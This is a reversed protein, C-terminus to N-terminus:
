AVSSLPYPPPPSQLLKKAGELLLILRRQECCLLVNVGLLNSDGAHEPLSSRLLSMYLCIVPPGLILFGGPSRWKGASVTTVFACM